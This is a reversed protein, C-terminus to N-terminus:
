LLRNESEPAPEAERKARKRVGRRSKGGQVSMERKWQKEHRSPPGPDRKKAVIISEHVQAHTSNPTTRKSTSQNHSVVNLKPPVIHRKTGGGTVIENPKKSARKKATQHNSKVRKTKKAKDKKVLTRKGATAKNGNATSLLTTRRLSPPSNTKSKKAISSYTGGMSKKALPSPAAERDAIMNDKPAFTNKAKPAPAPAAERKAAPQVSANVAALKGDLQPEAKPARPKVVAEPKAVPETAVKNVQAPQAEAKAARAQNKVPVSKRVVQQPAQVKAAPSKLSGERKAFAVAAAKVIALKVDPQAEAKAERKAPVSKRVTQQAEVETKDAKPSALPSQPVSKRVVSQAEPARENIPRTPKTSQFRETSQVNSRKLWAIFEVFRRINEMHRTEVQQKVPLGSFTATSKANRKNHEAKPGRGHGMIGDSRIYQPMKIAERAKVPSVQEIRNNAAPSESPTSNDVIPQVTDTKGSDKNPLIKSAERAEVKRAVVHQARIHAKPGEFPPINASSSATDSLIKNAERAKVPTLHQIRSHAKPGESPPINGIIPRVHGPGGAAADPLMKNAERTEVQQQVAPSEAIPKLPRRRRRLNTRLVEPEATRDIIQPM